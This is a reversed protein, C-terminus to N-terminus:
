GGGIGGALTPALDGGRPMVRAETSDLTVRSAM